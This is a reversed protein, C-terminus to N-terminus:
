GAFWAHDLRNSSAMGLAEAALSNASIMAATADVGADRVQRVFDEANRGHMGALADTGFVIKLGRVKTARRLFDLTMPTLEKWSAFEEITKPFFPQGAFKGANTLYNEWLLGAQPDLYTGREAMLVLDADTAGVGHEIQACGAM